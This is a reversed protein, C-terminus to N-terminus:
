VSHELGSEWSEEWPAPRLISLMRLEAFACGRIGESPQSPKDAHPSKSVGSFVCMQTQM